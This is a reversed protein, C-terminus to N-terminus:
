SGQIKESCISFVEQFQLGVVSGQTLTLTTEGLWLVYLMHPKKKDRAAQVTYFSPFRKM